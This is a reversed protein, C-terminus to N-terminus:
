FWRVDQHCLVVERVRMSKPIARAASAVLSVLVPAVIAGQGVHRGLSEGGVTIVRAGVDVRQRTNQVFAQGPHLRKRALPTSRWILLVECLRRWPRRRHLGPDRWLHVLDDRGPHGLTRVLAILRGLIEREGGAGSEGRRNRRLWGGGSGGGANPGGGVLQDVGAGYGVRSRACRRRM